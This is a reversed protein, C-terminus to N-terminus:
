NYGQMKENIEELDELSDVDKFLFSNEFFVENIKSSERIVKRGGTDGELKLLESKKYKPFFVPSSRQGQTLPLTIIKKKHFEWFLILVAEKSLLPQDGTFFVIGDGSSELVGLKVSESQGLYSRNNQVYRMKYKEGLNRTEEDKGILIIEYFPISSITKLTKRLMPEGQFNMFLKNEGMRKSLGSAMIVASTKNYRYIEGSKLNGMYIEKVTINKCIELAKEFSDLGSVKDVFIIKEYIQGKKEIIYYNNEDANKELVQSLVENMYMVEGTVEGTVSFIHGTSDGSVAIIDKKGMGFSKVTM